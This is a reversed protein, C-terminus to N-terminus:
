STAWVVGIWSSVGQRILGAPPKRPIRTRPIRTRPIRTRPIRTRPIRTRPLPHLYIRRGIPSSSGFPLSHCAIHRPSHLPHPPHWHIRSSAAPHPPQCAVHPCCARALLPRRAPLSHVVLPIQRVRALLPRCAPLPCNAPPLSPLPCNAPPPSPQCRAILLRCARALLPCRAPLSHVVLPSQCARAPELPCGRARLAGHHPQM